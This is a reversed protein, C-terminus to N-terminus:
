ELVNKTGELEEGGGSGENEKGDADCLDDAKGM